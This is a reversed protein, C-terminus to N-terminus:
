KLIFKRELRTGRNLDRNVKKGIFQNIFKPPMGMGPRIRRLNKANLKEGRKVNETIYLSRRFVANGKEAKPRWLGFSGLATWAERVDRCLSKLENPELSFECDPGKDARSLTFHKEIVCAGLAVATVSATTGLTHDSLGVPLRFRKALAPIRCLNAQDIATPYSSICHLLVVEKCGANKATVVAEEIEKESAMGTSMIMPKGTKAVYQILPLDVLEFSAIKYVPNKLSELLDM